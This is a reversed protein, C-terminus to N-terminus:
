AYCRHMTRLTYHLVRQIHQFTMIRAYFVRIRRPRHSVMCVHCITVIVPIIGQLSSPLSSSTAAPLPSTAGACLCLCSLVWISPIYEVWYTQTDWSPRSDLQFMPYALPLLRLWLNCIGALLFTLMISTTLKQLMCMNSVQCFQCRV